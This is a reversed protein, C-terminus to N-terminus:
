PDGKDPRKDPARGSSRSPQQEAGGAPELRLRDACRAAERLGVSRRGGLDAAGRPRRIRLCAVPTPDASLRSGKAPEIEAAEMIPEVSGNRSGTSQFSKLRGARGVEPQEKNLPGHSIAPVPRISAHERSEACRANTSLRAGSPGSAAFFQLEPVSSPKAARV